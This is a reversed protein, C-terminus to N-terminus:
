FYCYSWGRGSTQSLGSINWDGGPHSRSLALGNVQAKEENRFGGPSEKRLETVQKDSCIPKDSIVVSIVRCNPPLAAQMDPPPHFM